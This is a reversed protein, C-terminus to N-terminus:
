SFCALLSQPGCGSTQPSSTFVEAPKYLILLIQNSKSLMGSNDHLILAVGYDAEDNYLM